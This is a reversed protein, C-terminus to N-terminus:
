IARDNEDPLKYKDILFSHNKGIAVLYNYGSNNKITVLKTHEDVYVINEIKIGSGSIASRGLVGLRTYKQLLKVLIGLIIAVVFLALIVKTILIMLDTM